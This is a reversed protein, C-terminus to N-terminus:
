YNLIKNIYNGEYAGKFGYVIKFGQNQVNKPTNDSIYCVVENEKAIYKAASLTYEWNKKGLQEVLLVKM